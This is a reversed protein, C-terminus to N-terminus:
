KRRVAVVENCRISCRVNIQTYKLMGVGATELIRHWEYHRSGLNYNGTYKRDLGGSIWKSTSDAIGGYIHFM